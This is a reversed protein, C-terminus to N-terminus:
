FRAKVTITKTTTNGAADSASVTITNPGKSLPLGTITWQTTGAAVGSGGRSNQWTIRTLERDDWASGSMDLTAQRLYIYAKSPNEITLTPATADEPEATAAVTIQVTDTDIMGGSDTVTLEFTLTGGETGLDPATFTPADATADSLEVPQGDTQRWRYAVITDEDTDTSMTGDLEVIDGSNVTQDLGADALPAQNVWEVTILCSDTDKLGGTDTVTLQFVISAGETGTEPATFTPNASTSDALTVAPGQLQLWQYAVIGDDADTSASADLGVTDGQSVTQAGGADATPPLNVWTVNVICTDISTTGNHDTVTLEFLLSTGQEDVDPATFSVEPQDSAGLDVEIGEVQRWQFTAIGDDLDVSNLASLTVRAAEDVTQDPGADATPAQNALTFSVEITHDATVSALTYSTQAGVSTGDVMLDAIEFGTEATIAFTQSTGSSVTTQGAPSISGGEGAVATLTFLDAEFTANITHDAHVDSFLYNTQAAVSQGDVTLTAIHFGSDPTITYSQSAGDDIGITGAPSISGGTGATATIQHTDIAFNATITHDGGVAAFTYTDLAGVGVGDVSVSVVHYGANPVMTFTQDTGDDVSVTGAPAISGGTGTAAQITHTTTQASANYSVEESDASELSGDFARVVFYYTTDYALNYVTGTTASGTWVPQSYDYAQGETRQYIRYGEPAPDNADWALTVEATQPVTYIEQSFTVNALLLTALLTILVFATVRTPVRFSTKM